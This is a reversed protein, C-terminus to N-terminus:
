LPLLAICEGTLATNIRQAITFNHMKDGRRIARSTEVDRLLNDIKRDETVHDAYDDEAYVALAMRLWDDGVKDLAAQLKNGSVLKDEHTRFYLPKAGQAPSNEIKDAYIHALATQHDM